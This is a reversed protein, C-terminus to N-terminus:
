ASAPRAGLSTSVPATIRVPSAILRRLARAIVSIKASSAPLITVALAPCRSSLVSAAYPEPAVASEAARPAQARCTSMPPPVVFSARTSLPWIRLTAANATPPRSIARSAAPRHVLTSSDAASVQASSPM